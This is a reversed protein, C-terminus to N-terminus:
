STLEMLTPVINLNVADLLIRHMAYYFIYIFQKGLDAELYESM